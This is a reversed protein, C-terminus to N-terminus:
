GNPAGTWIVSRTRWSATPTSCCRTAPACRATTPIRVAPLVGLVTGASRSPRWTGSNADMQLAPPHGASRVSYLGSDLNVRIYVASAFGAAWSQRRLYNNSEALFEDPGVAGLLGGMAGSLLLARTGAEIGKGSVDVVVMDLHLNGGVDHVRSCIFDGAIAAGHAARQEIDVHWGAPFGRPPM